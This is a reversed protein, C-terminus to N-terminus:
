KPQDQEEQLGRLAREPRCAFYKKDPTSACVGAEEEGRPGRCQCADGEAKGSCADIAEQPPAKMERGGFPGDAERPPSFLSEDNQSATQSEEGFASMALFLSFFLILCMATKKGWVHGPKRMLVM